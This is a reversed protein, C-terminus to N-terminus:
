QSQKGQEKLIDSLTRGEIYDMVILFTDDQDFIDVISPLHEHKLHRLINAETVLNQKIIQSTASTSTKKVEKIAWQKNVKENIALWVTSMGGQGTKNIIKYKGDVVDGVRLGM